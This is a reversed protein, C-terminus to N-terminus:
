RNGRERHGEPDRALLERPEEGFVDAHRGLDEGADDPEAARQLDGRPRRLRVPAGEGEVGAVVILRVEDGLEALEDAERRRGVPEAPPSLYTPAPAPPQEKKGLGAEGDLGM